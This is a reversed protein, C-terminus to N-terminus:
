FSLLEVCEKVTGVDTTGTDKSTELVEKLANIKEVLKEDTIKELAKDLADKLADIDKDTTELKEDKESKEEAEEEEFLTKTECLMDDSEVLEKISEVIAKKNAFLDKNGLVSVGVFEKFALPDLALISTNEELLSQMDYADGNMLNGAAEAFLKKFEKDKSLKEAKSKANSVITKNLDEDILSVKVPNVWDFYKISGTPSELLYEKYNKFFPMEKVAAIEENIGELEGYNIIENKKSALAEVISENLDTNEAESDEEYAEAIAGVDYGDSEFYNRVAEKLASKESVVDVVEYNEVTLTKGDFKYDALYIGGSNHDALLLKDNYSELLVANASENILTRCLKELNKNSYLIYNSLKQSTIEM